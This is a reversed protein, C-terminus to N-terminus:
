PQIVFKLTDLNFYLDFVDINFVKLVIIRVLLWLLFIILSLILGLSMGVYYNTTSIKGIYLLISIMLFASIYVMVSVISYEEPHTLWGLLFLFSVILFGFVFSGLIVRINNKMM